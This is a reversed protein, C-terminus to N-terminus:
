CTPLRTDPPLVSRLLGPFPIFPTNVLLVKQEVIATILIQTWFFAAQQQMKYLRM